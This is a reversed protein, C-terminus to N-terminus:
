CRQHVESAAGCGVSPCVSGLGSVTEAETRRPWRLAVSTPVLIRAPWLLVVLLREVLWMAGRFLFKPFFLSYVPGGLRFVLRLVVVVVWLTIRLLVLALRYCTRWLASSVGGRSGEIRDLESALDPVSSTVKM